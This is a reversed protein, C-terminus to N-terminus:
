WMTFLEHMIVWDHRHLPSRKLPVNKEADRKHRLGKENCMTRDMAREVTTFHYSEHDAAVLATVSETQRFVGDM